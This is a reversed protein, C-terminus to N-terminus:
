AAELMAKKIKDDSWRKDIKINMKEAEAILAKREDTEKAEVREVKEEPNNHNIFPIDSWGESIAADVEDADFLKGGNDKKYDKHYLRVKSGHNRNAAMQKTSYPRGQASMPDKLYQQNQEFTAPSDNLNAAM